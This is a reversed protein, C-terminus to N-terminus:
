GRTDFGVWITITEGGLYPISVNEVVKVFEASQAPAAIAVPLTYKESFIAQGDREVAFRVPANVSSQKGAPGLLVRGAVGMNVTIQGNSVVCNRTVEDIVGQYQLSQADGVRGGGYFYMAEGGTRVKIPPCETAIVPLANTQAQAVAAPTMQANQLATNQSQTGGGMLGGMSCGALLMALGSLTAIRLASRPNMNM